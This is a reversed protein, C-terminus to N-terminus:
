LSNGCGAGTVAVPARGRSVSTRLARAPARAQSATRAPQHIETSSVKEKGRPEPTATAISSSRIDVRVSAGLVAAEPEPARARARAHVALFAGIRRQDRGRAEGHLAIEHRHALALFRGLADVTGIGIRQDAPKRHDAVGAPGHGVGLPQEDQTGRGRVDSAGEGADLRVAQTANAGANEEVLERGLLM